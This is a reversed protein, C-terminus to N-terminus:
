RGTQPRHSYLNWIRYDLYYLISFGVVKVKTWFHQRISLQFMRIRFRWIFNSPKGAYLYRVSKNVIRKNIRKSVLERVERPVDINIFYDTMALVYLLLNLVKHKKGFDIILNWDLGSESSSIIAAIDFIFKLSCCMSNAHHIGASIFQGELSLVNADVKNGIKKTICFPLLNSFSIQSQLFAPGLYWHPELHFRKHGDIYKEFNYESNHKFYKPRLWNPLQVEAIFANIKLLSEVQHLDDLDFLYDIDGFERSGLEGYAQEALVIGKYPIIEIHNERFLKILRCLEQGQDLAFINLKVVEAHLRSMFDEPVEIRNDKLSKYLIPRLKHKTALAFLIDWDLHDYELLVSQPEVGLASSCHNILFNFENKM